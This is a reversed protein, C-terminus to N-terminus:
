EELERKAAAEHKSELQAVIKELLKREQDSIKRGFGLIGGSAEAVQTCYSVLDRKSTERKESPLSQLIDRIIRTTKEFFEEPPRKNLWDNLLQYAPSGETINRSQAVELILKRESGSVSGEAWAIHVLPVLHLLMVTDRNYGLEQLDKLLDEDAIGLAQGMQQREAELEAHRRMKEILEKEKKRFYEEEQARKRDTFADKGSM